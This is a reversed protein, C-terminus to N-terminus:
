ITFLNSNTEIFYKLEQIVNYFSDYWDFFFITHKLQYLVIRFKKHHVLLLSIDSIQSLNVM